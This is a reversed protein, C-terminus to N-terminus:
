GEEAIRTPFKSPKEPSKHVWHKHNPQACDLTMERKPTSYASRNVLQACDLTMGQMPTSYASRNVYQQRCHQHQKPTRNLTCPAPKSQCSIKPTTTCSSTTKSLKNQSHHHLVQNYPKLKTTYQERTCDKTHLPLCDIRQQITHNTCSMNGEALAM